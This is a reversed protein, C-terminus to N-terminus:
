RRQLGILSAAAIASLLFLAIGAENPAHPNQIPPGVPPPTVPPPTPGPPPPQPPPPQGGPSGPPPGGVPPPTPPPPPPAIALTFPWVDKLINDSPSAVLYLHIEYKGPQGTCDLSITPDSFADQGFDFLREEGPALDTRNAVGCCQCPISPWVTQSVSAPNKVRFQVGVSGLNPVYATGNRPTSTGNILLDTVQVDPIPPPPPPPPPCDADTSCQDNAIGTVEVCSGNRCETHTLKHDSLINFFVSAQGSVAGSYEFRAEYSGPDWIEPEGNVGGSGAKAAIGLYLGNNFRYWYGSAIDPFNETWSLDIRLHGDPGFLRAHVQVSAAPAPGSRVLQHIFLVTECGSNLSCGCDGGCVCTGPAGSINSPGCCGLWPAGPALNGGHADRYDQQKQFVDKQGRIDVDGTVLSGPAWDTSSASSSPGDYLAGASGITQQFTPGGFLRFAIPPAPPLPGAEYRGVVGVSGM